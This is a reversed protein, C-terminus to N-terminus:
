PNSRAPREYIYKPQPPRFSMKRLKLITLRVPPSSIAAAGRSNTIDWFVVTISKLNELIIAM